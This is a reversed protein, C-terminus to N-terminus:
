IIKKWLFFFIIIFIVIILLVYLWSYKDIYKRKFEMIRGFFPADLGVINDELMVYQEYTYDPYERLLEKGKQRFRYKSYLDYIILLFIFIAPIIIPIAIFFLLYYIMLLGDRKVGWPTYYRDWFSLKIGKFEFTKETEELVEYIFDKTMLVKYYKNIEEEDKKYKNKKIVKGKENVFLIRKNNIGKCLLVKERKNASRNIIASIIIKITLFGFFATYVTIFFAGLLYELVTMKVGSSEKIMFWGFILFSLGLAFNILVILFPIIKNGISGKKM